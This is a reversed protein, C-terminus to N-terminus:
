GDRESEREFPSTTTQLMKGKGKRIPRHHSPPGKGKGKRDREKYREFLSHHSSADKVKGKGKETGKKTSHPLSPDLCRERKGM